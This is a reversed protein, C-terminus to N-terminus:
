HSSASIYFPAPMFCLLFVIFALLAVWRRNSDLAASDHIPAIRLLRMGLLLAGWV